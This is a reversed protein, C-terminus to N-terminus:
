QKNLQQNLKRVDRKARAYQILWIVAFVAAFIGFYGLCGAVSHEMWYNLYAVPLMVLSAGLFYVGTQRVLSWNELEWIVSLGGFGAGLLACLATQAVMAGLESGMAEALTPEYAVYYGGAWVASIVISIVTELAIGLPIGSLARFFAKRKM